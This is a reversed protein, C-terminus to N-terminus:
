IPLIKNIYTLGQHMYNWFIQPRTSMSGNDVFYKTERNSLLIMPLLILLGSRLDIIRMAVNAYTESDHCFMLTVLWMQM